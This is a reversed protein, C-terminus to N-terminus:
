QSKVKAKVFSKCRTAGNLITATEKQKITISM